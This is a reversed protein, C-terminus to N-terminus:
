SRRCRQVLVKVSKNRPDLELCKLLDSLSSSYDCMDLLTRGRGEWYVANSPNNEIAEGYDRLASPFKRLKAYCVARAYYARTPHLVDEKQALEIASTFDSVALKSQSNGAYAIGRTHYLSSQRHLSLAASAEVIAEEFKESYALAVAIAGHCHATAVKEQLGLNLASRFLVLAEDFKGETYATKGSEYSQEALSLREWDDRDVDDIFLNRSCIVAQSRTLQRRHSHKPSAVDFESTNSHEAPDGHKRHSLAPSSPKSSPLVAGEDPVPGDLVCPTSIFLSPTSM